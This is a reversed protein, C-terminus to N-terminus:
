EKRRRSHSWQNPGHGWRRAMVHGRQPGLSAKGDGLDDGAEKALHSAGRGGLSGDAEWGKEM